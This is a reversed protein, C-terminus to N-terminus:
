LDPPLQCSLLFPLSSPCSRWCRHLNKTIYAFTRMLSASRKGLSIAAAAMEPPLASCSVTPQPLPLLCSWQRGTSCHWPENGLVQEPCDQPTPILLGHCPSLGAITLCLGILLACGQSMAKGPCALRLPGWHGDQTLVQWSPGKLFVAALHMVGVVM